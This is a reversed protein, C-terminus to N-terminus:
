IWFLTDSINNMLKWKSWFGKWEEQTILLNFRNMKAGDLKVRDSDQVITFYKQVRVSCM